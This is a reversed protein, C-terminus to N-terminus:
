RRPYCFGMSNEMPPFSSLASWSCSLHFWGVLIFFRSPTPPHPLFFIFSCCLFAKHVQALIFLYMLFIKLFLMFLYMFLGNPHNQNRARQLYQTAMQNNLLKESTSSSKLCASLLQQVPQHKRIVPSMAGALM